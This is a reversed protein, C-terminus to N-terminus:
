TAKDAAAKAKRDQMLAWIVWGIIAAVATWMYAFTVIDWLQHRELLLYSYWWNELLGAKGHATIHVGLNDPYGTRSWLWFLPILYLLVVVITKLADRWRSQKKETGAEDM